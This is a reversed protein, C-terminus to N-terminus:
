NGIKKIKEKLVVLMILGPLALIVSLAFFQAWGLSEVIWGSPASLYVRGFSALASILAYQTASFRSSCMGTLLAVFATTGMGGCINEIAIAAGMTVLSKETVALYLFCLNSIGQLCGFLLLSRFLGLRMMLSGGLLAGAITSVLGLGKNIVGVETPSFGVGRILFSTSLSGAFADGLKYLIILALLWLAGDRKLFDQWSLRVTDMLSGHEAPAAEVSPAYLTYAALGFMIAGMLAYTAEWGLWKDALILALGGSTLMALRYGFVAVAAGLGREKTPLLDTRYADFAIDQTASGLAILCAIVGVLTPSQVGSAALTLLLLGIFVQSMAIWSRRHDAFTPWYRDLLPAWLFKFTYPTGALTLLGIAKLDAGSVTLWAQLSAGTLALPLGSSFGLPLLAAIRRNM